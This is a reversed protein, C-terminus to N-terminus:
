KKKKLFKNLLYGGIFTVAAGAMETKSMSTIEHVKEVAEDKLSQVKKFAIWMLVIVGISILIWSSFFIIGLIYYITQLLEM